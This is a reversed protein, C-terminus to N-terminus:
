VPFIIQTHVVGQSIYRTFNDHFHVRKNMTRVDIIIAILRIKFVEHHIIIIEEQSNLLHKM